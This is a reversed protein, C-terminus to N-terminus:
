PNIFDQVSKEYFKELLNKSVLKRYKESARMDSLPNFDKEIFDPHANYWGVFDTASYVGPLAEGTLGLSKDCNAGCAFILADYSEQLQSVTFNSTM